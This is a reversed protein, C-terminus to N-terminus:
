VRTVGPRWRWGGDNRFRKNIERRGVKELEHFWGLHTQVPASPLKLEWSWIRVLGM